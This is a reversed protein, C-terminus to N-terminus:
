NGIVGWKRVRDVNQCIIVVVRREKVETLIIRKNWNAPGGEEELEMWVFM